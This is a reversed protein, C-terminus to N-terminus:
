KDQLRDKHFLASKCSDMVSALWLSLNGDGFPPPGMSPLAHPTLTQEIVKTEMASLRHGWQLASCSSVASVFSYTNGDGFPPPGMSPTEEAAFKAGARVNGDGFPPPGMSPAVATQASTINHENGDGFPPPGMSPAMIRVPPVLHRSPKWRRFATAGNFASAASRGAAGACANGDGFPPPGM